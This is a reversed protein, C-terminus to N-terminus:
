DREHNTLWQRYAGARTAGQDNPDGDDPLLFMHSNACGAVKVRVRRKENADIEPSFSDLHARPLWYYRPDVGPLAIPTGRRFLLEVQLHQAFLVWPDIRPDLLVDAEWVHSYGTRRSSTAGMMGGKAIPSEGFGSALRWRAVDLLYPGLTSGVGFGYGPTPPIRPTVLIYGGDGVEAAGGIQSPIESIDNAYFPAITFTPLPM